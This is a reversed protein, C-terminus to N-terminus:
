IYSLIFEVKLTKILETRLHLATYPTSAALVIHYKAWNPKTIKYPVFDNQKNQRTQLM